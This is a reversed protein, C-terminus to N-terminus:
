PPSCPASTSNSKRIFTRELHNDHCPKLFDETLLSPPKFRRVELHYALTRRETDIQRGLEHEVTRKKNEMDEDKTDAIDSSRAM